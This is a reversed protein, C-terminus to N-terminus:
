KQEEHVCLRQCLERFEPSTDRRSLMLAAVSGALESTEPSANRDAKPAVINKLATELELVAEKPRETYLCVLSDTIAGCVLYLKTVLLELRVDLKLREVDDCLRDFEDKTM